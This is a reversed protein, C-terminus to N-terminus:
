IEVLENTDRQCIQSIAPREEVVGCEIAITPGAYSTNPAHTPMNFLDVGLKPL